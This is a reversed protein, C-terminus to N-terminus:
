FFFFFFFIGWTPSRVVFRRTVSVSERKFYYVERKDRMLVFYRERWASTAVSGRKHMIGDFRNHDDQDFKSEDKASWIFSFSSFRKAM